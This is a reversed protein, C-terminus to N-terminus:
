GDFFGTKGSSQLSELRHLDRRPLGTQSQEYDVRAHRSVSQQRAPVGHKLRERPPRDSLEQPHNREAVFTTLVQSINCARYGCVGSEKREMGESYLGLLEELILWCIEYPVRPSPLEGHPVFAPRTAVPEQDTSARIPNIIATEDDRDWVGGYAGAPNDHNRGPRTM